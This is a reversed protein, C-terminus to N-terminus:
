GHVILHESKNKPLSASVEKLKNMFQAAATANSEEPAWDAWVTDSRVFPGPTAEHIVLRPSKMVITHYINQPVRIYFQKGSNYDGLNVVDTLNGREDFFYFDAEGELIHLSEDKGLHKNPRVYTQDMYVVFMEHLAAETNKHICLRVRNRPSEVVKSKLFEMERQGISIVTDNAQYVETNIRDMKLLPRPKVPLKKFQAAYAQAVEMNTDDPAWPAFVTADRSFPGTTTEHIMMDPSTIVLAHQVSENIRCYFQRDSHYQGLHVTDIVDGKENYFVYLGAGELVHLSEDKGIHKSPQLYTDGSFGIVMEHLRDENTLHACLRVRNKLTGPISRRLIQVEEKGVSAIPQDPLFVEKSKPKM